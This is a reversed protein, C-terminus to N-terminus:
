EAGYIRCVQLLRARVQLKASKAAKPNLFLKIRKGQQDFEIIGGYLPFKEIESVTLVPAKRIGRLIGTLREKESGAVFLVHCSLLAEAEEPDFGGFRKVVVKRGNISRGSVLRDLRDGFPDEGLVGIVYPSKHDPFANSPWEVFELFHVLYAAELDYTDV